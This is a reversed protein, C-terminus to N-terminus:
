PFSVIYGELPPRGDALSLNHFQLLAIDRRLFKDTARQRCYAGLATFESGIAATQVRCYLYQSWLARGLSRVAAYYQVM